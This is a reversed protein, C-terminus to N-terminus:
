VPVTFTINTCWVASPFLKEHASEGATSRERAEVEAMAAGVIEIQERGVVARELSPAVHKRIHRRAESPCQLDPLVRRAEQARHQTAAVLRHDDIEDAILDVLDVGVLGLM